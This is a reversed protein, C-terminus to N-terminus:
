EPALPVVLEAAFALQPDGREVLTRLLTALTRQPQQPPLQRGNVTVTLPRDLDALRDHLRVLLSGSPAPVRSGDAAEVQEPVTLL